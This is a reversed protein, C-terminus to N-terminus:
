LFDSNVITEAFPRLSPYQDALSGLDDEDLIVQEYLIKIIKIAIQGINQSRALQQLAIQLIEKL